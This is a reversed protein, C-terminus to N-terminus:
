RVYGAEEATLTRFWVVEHELSEFQETWITYKTQSIPLSDRQALERAHEFSTPEDAYLIAFLLDHDRQIPVLSLSRLLAMRNTDDVLAVFAGPTEIRAEPTSAHDASCGAALLFIAGFM